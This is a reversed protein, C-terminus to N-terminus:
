NKFIEWQFFMCIMLIALKISWFFCYFWHQKKLLTQDNEACVCLPPLLDSPVRTPMDGDGTLKAERTGSGGRGETPVQNMGRKSWFVGRGELSTEM